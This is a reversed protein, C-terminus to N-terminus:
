TAAFLNSTNEDSDSTRVRRACAGVAVEGLLEGFFVGRVARREQRQGCVLALGEEGLSAPSVDGFPERIGQQVLLVEGVRQLKVVRQDLLALDRGVASRLGTIKRSESPLSRPTTASSTAENAASRARPHPGASTTLPTRPLTANVQFLESLRYQLVVRLAKVPFRRLDPRAGFFDAGLELLEDTAPPV